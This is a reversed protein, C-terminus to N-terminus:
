DPEDKNLLNERMQLFYKIVQTMEAQGCLTYKVYVCM